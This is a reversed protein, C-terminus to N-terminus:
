NHQSRREQYKSSKNPVNLGLVYVVLADAIVTRGMKTVKMQLNVTFCFELPALIEM